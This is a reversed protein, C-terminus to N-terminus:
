NKIMLSKFMADTTLPVMINDRDIGKLYEKYYTTTIM